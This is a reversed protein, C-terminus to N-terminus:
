AKKRRIGKKKKRKNFSSLNPKNIRKKRKIKKTTKEPLTKNKPTHKEWREAMEPYFKWM